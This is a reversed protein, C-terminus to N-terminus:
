VRKRFDPLLKNQVYWRYTKELAVRLPTQPYGLEQIARASSYRRTHQAVRLLEPTLPPEKRTILSAGYVIYAMLQAVRFPVIKVQVPKGMVDAIERILDSYARVEGGLIYRRGPQGREMAAIHAACVDDVDSTTSHGEPIRITSAEAVMKFIRGAQFHLDRPGFIVAPNVSVVEVGRQNGKMAEVEGLHKTICYHVDYPEWNFPTDEDAPQGDPRFGVAAISSTHVIRRVGNRVAAEVVNRPGEVNVKWQRGRKPRWYSILGAAHYIGEVGRAAAILSDLDTVDGEVFEVPLGKLLTPPTKRRKLVRVRDGRAVLHHCLNAGLFGTGGTVLVKM